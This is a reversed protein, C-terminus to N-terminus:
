DQSVIQAMESPTSGVPEFTLDQLRKAIDPQKVAEAVAASIRNVIAPPTGPPAIMAFWNGSVFGPLVEVAAPVEPLFPSRKESGVALVRLQGSRILPLVNSFQAFMLEVRGGILDAQAPTTGKYPVHVLKAGTMSQFLEATLHPTSGSGATAYNLKGPNARAFAILEQLNNAPVSPHVVLVNPNTVVISIPVFADSDYALKEYLLKNIVIPGPPSLLLTHGDPAARYVIEGGINGGAGARHELVGPQDWKERFKDGVIRGLTDLLGGAAFPIVIRIPRTPYDQAQASLAFALAALLVLRNL